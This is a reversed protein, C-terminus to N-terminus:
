MSIDLKQEAQRLMDAISRMVQLVEEPPVQQVVEGTQTDLFRYIVNKDNDISVSMQRPTPLTVPPAKPQQAVPTQAILKAAPPLVNRRATTDQANAMAAVQVPDICM